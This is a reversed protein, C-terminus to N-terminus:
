LSREMGLSSLVSTKDLAVAARATAPAATAVSAPGSAVAGGCLRFQILLVTVCEFQKSLAAMCGGVTAQNSQRVGPMDARCSQRKHQGRLAMRHHAGLEGGGLSLLQSPIGQDNM